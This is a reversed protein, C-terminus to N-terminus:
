ELDLCVSVVIAIRGDDKEDGERDRHHGLVVQVAIMDHMMRAVVERPTKAMQSIAADHSSHRWAGHAKALPGPHM